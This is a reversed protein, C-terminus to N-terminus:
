DSMARSGFKLRVQFSFKIGLSTTKLNCWFLSSSSVHSRLSNSTDGLNYITARYSQTGYGAYAIVCYACLRAAYKELSFSRDLRLLADTLAALSNVEDARHAREFREVSTCVTHLPAGSAQSSLM